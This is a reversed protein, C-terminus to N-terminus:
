RHIPIGNEDFVPEDSRVRKKGRKPKAPAGATAPAGTAPVDLAREGSPTPPMPPPPSASVPSASPAGAVMAGITETATKTGSVSPTVPEGRVSATPRPVDSSARPVAAKAPVAQRRDSAPRGFITAGLLVSGAALVLIAGGMAVRRLGGKPRTVRPDRVQGLASNLTTVERRAPAADGARLSVTEGEIAPRQARTGPRTEGLFPEGALEREILALEYLM